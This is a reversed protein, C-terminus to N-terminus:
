RLFRTAEEIQAIERELREIRRILFNFATRHYEDMKHSKIIEKVELVSMPTGRESETMGSDFRDNQNEVDKPKM